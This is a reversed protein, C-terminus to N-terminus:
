HRPHYTMTVVILHASTTITSTEGIDLPPQPDSATGSHWLFTGSHPSLCAAHFPTLESFPLCELRKPIWILYRWSRRHLRIATEWLQKDRLSSMALTFARLLAYQPNTWVPTLISSNNNNMKHLYWGWMLNAENPLAKIKRPNVLSFLIMIIIYGGGTKNVIEKIEFICRQEPQQPKLLTEHNEIVM